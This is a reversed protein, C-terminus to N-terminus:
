WLWHTCCCPLSTSRGLILTSGASTNFHSGLYAFSNSYADLLQIIWYRKPTDFQPVTIVQPGQMM